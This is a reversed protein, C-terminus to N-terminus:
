EIGPPRQCLVGGWTNVDLAFNVWQGATGGRTSMYAYYPGSAWDPDSSNTPFGSVWNSYDVPSGDTWTWESTKTNYYLGIVLYGGSHIIDRDRALRLLDFNAASDHIAVLHGNAYQCLEQADLWNDTPRGEDVEAGYCLGNKPNYIWEDWCLANDSKDEVLCVSPKKESCNENNWNGKVVDFSLCKAKDWIGVPHSQSFRHPSRTGM